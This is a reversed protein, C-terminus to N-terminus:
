VHTALLALVSRETEDGATVKTTSPSYRTGSTTLVDSTEQQLNM